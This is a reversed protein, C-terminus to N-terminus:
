PLTLAVLQAPLGAGGTPIVIYPKGNLEYAMLAGTANGPLPVEGILEGTDLDFAKLSPMYSSAQYRAANYQPSVGVVTNVGEQVALLLESTAAVYTRSPIGMPPMNRGKFQPLQEYRRGVPTMWAHEGTQMDIATIRGYPPKFIPMGNSLVPAPTSTTGIWFEQDGGVPMVKLVMALTISPVYLYGRTPDYAGGSWSAAVGPLALRGRVSPPSYMPGSDFSDFIEKAEALLEPTLDNLNAETADQRDFPAPKSPIPLTAAALERPVDSPPVPTDRIPWVPEGTIRDFVFLMAQKTPQAALKRGDPTDLLVPASPLDYDWLGHRTIQFHWRREGTNMDVAVLTEGFLNDGPRNGGWSDNVPTGFPLYALGAEEDCSMYTWVNAAGNRNNSGDEWTDAGYEGDKPISHFHWMLEGTRANFARVDGPPTDPRPPFELISSGVAIAEGCVLPPSSVGYLDNSVEQGLGELLNVQGGDGWDEIPRGDEANLAILRSDGTGLFIRRESGNSWLALGRNIFGFNPPTGARYSGPDHVWLLEGTAADLAYAQSFSTSNYLVGDAMIPTSEHKGAWLEDSGAGPVGEDPSTFLWASILSSFNDPTLAPLPAYRQTGQDGAYHPWDTSAESQTAPVEQAPALGAALLLLAPVALTAAGPNATM